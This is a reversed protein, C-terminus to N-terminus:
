KGKGWYTYIPQGANGQGLYFTIQAADYTSGSGGGFGPNTTSTKSSSPSTPNPTGTSTGGSNSTSSGGGGSSSSSGSSVQTRGSADVYNIFEQSQNNYTLRITLQIEKCNGPGIFNNGEILSTDSKGNYDENINLNSNTTLSVVTFDNNATHNFRSTATLNSVTANGVNCIRYKYTILFVNNGQPINAVIQNTIEVMASAGLVEASPNEPTHNTLNYNHQLLLFAALGSIVLIGVGLSM